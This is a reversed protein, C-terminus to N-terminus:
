PQKKLHEGSIESVAMTPPEIQEPWPYTVPLPCDYNYDYQTAEIFAKKDVPEPYTSAIGKQYAYNAIRVAIEVSCERIKRLPPYLSGREIDENAVTDAVTQAAILFLEETIHHIGTAIVGLAVGPFIYANNGQGPHFTKDNYTVPAFPSGSAFVCRGSNAAPASSM